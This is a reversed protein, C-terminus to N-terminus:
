LTGCLRPLKHNLAGQAKQEATVALVAPM